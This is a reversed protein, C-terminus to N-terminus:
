PESASGVRGYRDQPLLRTLHGLGSGGTVDVLVEALSLRDLARHVRLSCTPYTSAMLDDAARAYM